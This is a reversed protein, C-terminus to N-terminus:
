RTRFRANPRPGLQCHLVAAAERALVLRRETSRVAASALDPKSWEPERFDELPFVEQTALDRAANAPFRIATAPIVVWGSRVTTGPNLVRIRRTRSFDCYDKAHRFMNTRALKAQEAARYAFVAKEAFGGASRPHYPQAISNYSGWTHEDFLMANRWADNYPPVLDCLSCQGVVM